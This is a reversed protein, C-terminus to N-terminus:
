SELVHEAPRTDGDNPEITLVYKDFDSYDTESVFRNVYQDGEKVLAGTSVFSFPQSKVLWGEYFEDGAPDPINNMEGELVFDEGNLGYRVEGFGEGDFETGRITAGNTVDKLTLVSAFEMKAMEEFTGKTVEQKGRDKRPYAVSMKDETETPERDSTKNGGCGSLVLLISVLSLVLIKKFM